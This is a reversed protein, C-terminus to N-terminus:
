TYFRTGWAKFIGLMVPNRECFCYLGEGAAHFHLNKAALQEAAADRRRSCGGVPQQQQLAEAGGAASPLFTHM